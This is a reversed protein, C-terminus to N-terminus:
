AYRRRTSDINYLNLCIESIHKCIPCKARVVDDGEIKDITGDTTKKCWLCFFKVTVTM